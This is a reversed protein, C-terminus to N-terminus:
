ILSWETITQWTVQLFIVSIFIYSSMEREHM